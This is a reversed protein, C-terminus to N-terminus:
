TTTGGAARTRSATAFAPLQTGVSRHLFPFRGPSAYAVYVVNQHDLVGVATSLFLEVTLKEAVEHANRWWPLSALYSYLLTQPRLCFLRDKQEVYGLAELTLLFRRAASRDLGTARAVDALTQM